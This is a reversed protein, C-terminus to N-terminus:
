MAGCVILIGAVIVSEVVVGQDLGAEAGHAVLDGSGGVRHAVGAGVREDAPLVQELAVYHAEVAVEGVAVQYVVDADVDALTVEDVAGGGRAPDYDAVKVGAVVSVSEAPAAPDDFLSVFLVAAAQPFRPM